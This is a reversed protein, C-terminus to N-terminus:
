ADAAGTPSSVAMWSSGNCVLVWGGYTTVTEDAGTCLYINQSGGGENNELVLDNSSTMKAIHLVQGEVGGALGGITVNNSSTDCKVIFAGSVDLNDTPGATSTTVMNGSIAGAVELKCAPSTEGIGVNGTSDITMRPSAMDDDTGDSQVYFEMRSPADDDDVDLAGWTNDGKVAIRAGTAYTNSDRGRFYIQGLYDDAVVTTESTTLAITGGGAASTQELDLQKNPTTTGIGVRGADTVILNNTHASAVTGLWVKGPVGTDVGFYGYDAGGDSLEIQCGAAASSVFRAATSISGADVHLRYGPSATGIGVNGNAALVLQNTNQASSSYTELRMLTPVRTGASGSQEVYIHAGTDRNSDIDVGKFRIQGLADGDDTQALAETESDSKRFELVSYSADSDYTTIDLQSAANIGAVELTHDPTTTGIGVNGSDMIRMKESMANNQITHFSMYSDCNGSTSFDSVKGVSIKAANDQQTDPSFQISVSGSTDDDDQQNGLHLAIFDASAVDKTVDLQQTPSTTGIGVNGNALITMKQTANDAGSNTWFQLEAPMSNTGPSGNTQCTIFAADIWADDSNDQGYWSIDGLNIDDGLNADPDGRRLSINGGAHAATTSMNSVLLTPVNTTASSSEIHLLQEPSTTGIGVNNSAGYGVVMVNDYAYDAGALTGANQTQIYLGGGSHAALLRYGDDAAAGNSAWFEMTPNTDATTHVLRLHPQTSTNTGRVDLLSGPSTTGIGVNGSSLITMMDGAPDNYAFRLADVTDDNYINWYAHESALELIADNAGNAQVRLTTAGASAAKIHLEKTPATTGIGVNGSTDIVLHPDTGPHNDSGIMFKDSDSNDIGVSWDQAGTTRLHLYPDGTGDEDIMIRTNSSTDGYMHLLAEPSATGIGVKGGDQLTLIDTWATGSTYNSFHLDDDSANVWMRWKDANDDGQDAFLDLIANGGEDAVIKLVSVNSSYVQVTGSKTNTDTTWTTSTSSM